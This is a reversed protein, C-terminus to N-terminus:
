KRTAEWSCSDNGSSTGKIRGATLRGTWYQTILANKRTFSVSTGNIRGETITGVDQWNTGAFSGGFHGRSTETLDFEGHWGKISCDATWRWRGALSPGSSRDGAGQDSPRSKSSVNKDPETASQAGSISKDTKGIKGGTSGTQACAPTVVALISLVGLSLRLIIRLSAKNACAMKCGEKGLRRLPWRWGNRTRAAAAKGSSSASPLAPPRRNSCRVGAGRVRRDGAGV